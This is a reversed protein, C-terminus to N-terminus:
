SPLIASILGCLAESLLHYGKQTLHLGDYMIDQPILGNTDVFLYGIDAYHISKSFTSTQLMKNVHENMIRKRDAVMSGRPLIGLLIIESEPCLQALLDIIRTIEDLTQTTTYNHDSNNTGILVIIVEPELSHLQTLELFEIIDKTTYGATGFNLPNYKSFFREYCYKDWWEFISDGLFVLM